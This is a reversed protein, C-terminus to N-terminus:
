TRGMTGARSAATDEFQVLLRKMLRRYVGADMAYHRYAGEAWFQVHWPFSEALWRLVRRAEAGTLFPRGDEHMRCAVDRILGRGEDAKGSLASVCHSCDADFPTVLVTKGDSAYRREKGHRGHPFQFPTIM